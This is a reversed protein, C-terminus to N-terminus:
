AISQTIEERQTGISVDDTSYPAQELDRIREKSYGETELKAIDTATLTRTETFTM